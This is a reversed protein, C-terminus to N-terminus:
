EYKKFARDYFYKLYVMATQIGKETIAYLEYSPKNEPKITKNIVMDQKILNNIRIRAMKQQLKGTYLCISDFKMFTHRNIFLALLVTLHELDVGCIAETINKTNNVSLCLQALDKFGQIAEGQQEDRNNFNNKIKSLHGHLAHYETNLIYIGSHCNQMGMHASLLLEPTGTVFVNERAMEEINKSRAVGTPDDYQAYLREDLGDIDYGIPATTIYTRHGMRALLQLLREMPQNAVFRRMHKISKFHQLENPNLLSRKAKPFTAMVNFVHESFAPLYVIHYIKPM